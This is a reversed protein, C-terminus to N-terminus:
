LEKLFIRQIYKFMVQSYQLYQSSLCKWKRRKAEREDSHPVKDKNGTDNTAAREAKKLEQKNPAGFTAVRDCVRDCM